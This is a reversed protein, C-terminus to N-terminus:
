RIILNGSTKRNKYYNQNVYNIFVIIKRIRKAQKLM